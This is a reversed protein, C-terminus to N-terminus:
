PDRLAAIADEVTAVGVVELDEPAALQAADLQSAPVLVLDAGYAAASRVKEPVGGVSGVQGSAMVSGTGLVTRGAVLDEDSLLDYITVATMMGASPGGIRTDNLSVEFPLELGVTATEALVGLG